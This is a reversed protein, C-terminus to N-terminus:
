CTPRIWPCSNHSSFNLAQADASAVGSSTPAPWDRRIGGGDGFEPSDQDIEGLILWVRRINASVGGVDDLNASCPEVEVWFEFLEGFNPRVFRALVPWVSGFKTATEGSAASNAWVFRNRAVCRGIRLPRTGFSRSLDCDRVMQTPPKELAVCGGGM